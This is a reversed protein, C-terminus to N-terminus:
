FSESKVASLHAQNRTGYFVLNLFLLSIQESLQTTELKFLRAWVTKLSFRAKGHVLLYNKRALLADIVFIQEFCSLEQINYLAHITYM